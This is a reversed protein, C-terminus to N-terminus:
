LSLSLILYSIRVFFFIRSNDAPLTDLFSSSILFSSLITKSGYPGYESFINPAEPCVLLTTLLALLFGSIFGLNLRYPCMSKFTGTIIGPVLIFCIRPHSLLCSLLNILPSEATNIRFFSLLRLSFLSSTFEIIM